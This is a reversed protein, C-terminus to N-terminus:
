SAQDQVAVNRALTKFRGGNEQRVTITIHGSKSTHNDEVKGAKGKHAGMIVTCHDGNKVTSQKTISSTM